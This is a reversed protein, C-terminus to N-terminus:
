EKNKKFLEKMQKGFDKFQDVTNSIKEMLQAPNQNSLNRVAARLIEKKLQKVSIQPNDLKTDINFELNLNGGKDTFLDLANKAFDPKPMELQSQSESIPEQPAYILNYLKLNSLISLDNSKATLKSLFELKASQLKKTSIFDGYYLSFNTIDLDKVTFVADMDKRGFDVWGSFDFNGITIGESNLLSSSMKFKTNLSTIPVMVKAVSINIKDMIIKFGEAIIKKDTFNLRGDIIVLDTAFFPPEKGGQKFEPLNLKGNADQVLNIVPQTIQLGGLVIKGAFVGLLNPYFSIEKVKILEGIALNKLSISLPFKISFEDLSVPMNLNQKLQGVILNKGNSSIYFFLGAFLLMFIVVFIFVIKLAIKM